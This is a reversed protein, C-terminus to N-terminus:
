HKDEKGSAKLRRYLDLEVHIIFVVITGLTLWVLFKLTWYMPEGPGGRKFTWHETGEAFNAEAKYHCQACTKGVNQKAVM